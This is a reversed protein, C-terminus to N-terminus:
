SSNGMIQKKLKELGQDIDSMEVGLSAIKKNSLALNKQWPRSDPSLSKQYEELSGKKVLGSDFGFEQAIKQALRYPSLSESGVLHFVGTVKNGLFYDVGRAIDDIFTPTITQDAFMPYLNKNELSAIIKRVLDQKPAFQARYPFAIRVIAAPLDSALVVKEADYKTQGYWDIPDPQDEEIYVGEKKGSFVFDTSFHVLYQNHKQCQDIINRTGIVNLQYCLGKKEGRQEHAANTDTFAALHLVTRADQHNDFAKELLSNDLIDVGSALSLDVFQYKDGLLETIRSGVLGSLGTGIIKIKRM